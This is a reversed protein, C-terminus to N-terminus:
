SGSFYPDSRFARLPTVERRVEDIKYFVVIPPNTRFMLAWADDDSIYQGATPDRELAWNGSWKAADWAEIDGVIQEIQSLFEPTEVLEYPLWTDNDQM